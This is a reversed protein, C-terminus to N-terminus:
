IMFNNAWVVAPVALAAALVTRFAAIPHATKACLAFLRNIGNEPMLSIHTTRIIDITRDTIDATVMVARLIVAETTITDAYSIFDAITTTPMKLAMTCATPAKM